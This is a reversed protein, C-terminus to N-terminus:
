DMMADYYNSGAYLLNAPPVEEYQVRKRDSVEDEEDDERKRRNARPLAPQTDRVVLQARYIAEYEQLTCEAVRAPTTTDSM